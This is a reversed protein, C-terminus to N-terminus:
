IGDAKEWVNEQVSHCTGMVDTSTALTETPPVQQGGAAVATLTEDSVMEKLLEIALDQHETTSGICWASGGYVSGDKEKVPWQVCDFDDNTLGADQWTNLVWRGAGVMAVQNNAFMTYGDSSIPEPCIGDKYMGNLFDVAEVIGESNVTPTEGDEGVLAANNTSWWPTLQFYTCPFCFGYVGDKTLKEATERFQDWTWGDQPYELGADDFMHKNYYVVMTQTGNPLGYLSDGSSFGELLSPAYQDKKATLEEDGAIIDDLPVLLDNSVAMNVAELGLSIVDPAEGSTSMTIWKQIFDSWSEVPVCTQEVKVNPNEENFRAIADNAIKEEDTNGWNLVRLTVKDEAHVITAASMSMTAILGLAIAKKM